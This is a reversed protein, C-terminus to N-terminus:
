DCYAQGLATLGDLNEDVLSNNSGLAPFKAESIYQAGFWAYAQVFSQADLWAIAATMFNM